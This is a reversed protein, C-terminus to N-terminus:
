KGPFITNSIYIREAAEPGAAIMLVAFVACGAVICLGWPVSLNEQEPHLFATICLIALAIIWVLIMLWCESESYGFKWCCALAEFMIGTVALMWLCNRDKDRKSCHFFGYAAAIIVMVVVNMWFGCGIAFISLYLGFSFVPSFLLFIEKSKEAYIVGWFLGAFLFVLLWYYGINDSDQCIKVAFVFPIGSAALFADVGLRGKQEERDYMLVACLFLVIAAVVAQGWTYVSGGYLFKDFAAAARRVTNEVFAKETALAFLMGFFMLVELLPEMVERQPAAAMAIKLLVTWIATMALCFVLISCENIEWSIDLLSIWPNVVAVLSCAEAAGFLLFHGSYWFGFAGAIFVFLLVLLWWKTGASRGIYWIANMSFNRGPEHFSLTLYLVLDLVAFEMLYGGAPTEHDSKYLVVAFVLLELVVTCVTVAGSSVGRVLVPRMVMMNILFFIFKNILFRKSKEMDKVWENKRFYGIQRM